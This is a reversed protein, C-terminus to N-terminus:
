TEHDAPETMIFNGNIAIHLICREPIGHVGYKNGPSIYMGFKGIISYPRRTKDFGNRIVM